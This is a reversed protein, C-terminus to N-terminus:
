AYWVRDLVIDSYAYCRPNQYAATTLVEPLGLAMMKRSEESKQLRDGLEGYPVGTHSCAPRGRVNCADVRACGGREAHTDDVWLCCVAARAHRRKNHRTLLCSPNHCRRWRPTSCICECRSCSAQRAQKMCTEARPGLGQSSGQHHRVSHLWLHHRSSGPGTRVLAFSFRVKSPSLM